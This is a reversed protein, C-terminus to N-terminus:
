RHPKVGGGGDGVMPVGGGMSTLVRNSTAVQAGVAGPSKKSGLFDGRLSTTLDLAPAPTM